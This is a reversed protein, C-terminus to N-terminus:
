SKKKKELPGPLVWGVVMPLVVLLILAWGGMEIMQGLLTWFNDGACENMAKRGTQGIPLAETVVDAVFATTTAGLIPAAVGGSLVTGALAGTGAALSTLGAKKITTCGVLCCAGLVVLWHGNWNNSNSCNDRSDNFSDKEKYDM